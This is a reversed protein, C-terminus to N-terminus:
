VNSLSKRVIGLRTVVLQAVAALQASVSDAIAGIIIHYVFTMVAFGLLVGPVILVSINKRAVKSVTVAKRCVVAAAKPECFLIRVNV